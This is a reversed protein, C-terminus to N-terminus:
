KALGCSGVWTGCNCPPNGHKYLYNILYTIDLINVGCNCNADGSTIPYPTPASGSKYLYNILYTIDLINITKNGNADGPICESGYPVAIDTLVIQPIGYFSIDTSTLYEVIKNHNESIVVVEDGLVKTEDKGGIITINTPQAWEFRTLPSTVLQYGNPPAEARAAPGSHGTATTVLSGNNYIKITQLTGGIASFDTSVQWESSSTKTISNSSVAQNPTGDVRGLASLSLTDGTAGPPWAKIGIHYSYAEEFATNFQATQGAGANKVALGSDDSAFSANSGAGLTIGNIIIRESRLRVTDRNTVRMDAMSLPCNCLPPCWCTDNLIAEYRAIVGAYIKGGGLNFNVPENATVQAKFTSGGSAQNILSVDLGGYPDGPGKILKTYKIMGSHNSASYLLGGAENYIRITYSTVGINSFDVSITGTDGTWQSSVFGLPDADTETGSWLAAWIHEKDDCSAPSDWRWSIGDTGCLDVLLGDDNISGINSILLGGGSITDLKAFGKAANQLGFRATTKPSVAQEGPLSLRFASDTGINTKSLAWPIMAPNNISVEILDASVANSMGPLKVKCPGILKKKNTPAINAPKKLIVVDVGNMPDGYSKAGSTKEPRGKASGYVTIPELPGVASAVLDGELYLEYRLSSSGVLADNFDTIFLYTSDDMRQKSSSVVPQNPVGNIEGYHTITITSGFPISDEEPTSFDGLYNAISDDGSDDLIVDCGGGPQRNIINIVGGGTDLCAFNNAVHKLGFITITDRPASVTPDCCTPVPYGGYPNFVSIGFTFYDRFLASDASNIVCDGNLDATFLYPPIPGCQNLFMSLYALDSITLPLGDNNIDATANCTDGSSVIMFCYPGGWDPYYNGGGSLAWLWPGGPPFWCSDICLTDGDQYQDVRTTIRLVVDNYGNPIGNPPSPMGYGGWGITDAGMGDNSFQQVFFATNFYGGIGGATDWTLPEWTAGNPSYIRFGNTAGMIYHWTQNTLHISFVLDTNPRIFGEGPPLSPVVPIRGNFYNPDCCSRVRLELYDIKSDDQMLFDLEGDQIMGLLNRYSFLGTSTNFVPMQAMDFCANLTDGVALFTDAPIGSIYAKLHNLRLGWFYNTAEEHLYIADNNFGGSIPTIKMCLQASIIGCTNDWCNRFTHGFCRDAITADFLTDAGGSVTKIYALLAASPSSLEDGDSTDFNDQRGVRCTDQPFIIGGVCSTDYGPGHVPGAGMGVAQTWNASTSTPAAIRWDVNHPYGSHNFGFDMPTSSLHYSGSDYYFLITYPCLGNSAPSVDGHRSPANYDDGCSQNLIKMGWGPPMCKNTYNAMVPDYTGIIVSDMTGTTPTSVRYVYDHIGGSDVVGTGGCAYGDCVITQANLMGALPLLIFAFATLAIKVM